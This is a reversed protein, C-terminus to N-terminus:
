LLLIKDALADIKILLKMQDTTLARVKPRSSALSPFRVNAKQIREADIASHLPDGTEIMNKRMTLGFVILDKEEATLM